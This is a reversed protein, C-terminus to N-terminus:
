NARVILCRETFANQLGSVKKLLHYPWGGLSAIYTAGFSFAVSCAGCM